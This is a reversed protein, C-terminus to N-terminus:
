HFGPYPYPALNPDVPFRHKAVAIRLTFPEVEFQHPGPSVIIFFDGDVPVPWTFTKGPRLSMRCGNSNKWQVCFDAETPHEFRVYLLQGARARVLYAKPKWTHVAGSVLTATTGRAFHVRTAASPTPAQYTLNSWVAAALVVNLLAGM